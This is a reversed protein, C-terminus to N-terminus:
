KWILVVYFSVLNLRLVCHEGGRKESRGEKEGGDGEGGDHWGGVDAEGDVSAVGGVGAILFGEREVELRGYGPERLRGFGVAQGAQGGVDM